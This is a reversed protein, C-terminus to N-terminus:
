EAVDEHTSVKEFEKKSLGVALSPFSSFQCAGGNPTLSLDFPHDDSGKSRQIESNGKPESVSPKRYGKNMPTRMKYISNHGSHNRDRSMQGESDPTTRVSAIGWLKSRPSWQSGGKQDLGNFHHGFTLGNQIVRDNASTLSGEFVLFGKWSGLCFFNVKRPLLFPDEREHRIAFRILLNGNFEPEAFLGDPIVEGGDELLKM